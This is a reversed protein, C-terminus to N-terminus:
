RIQMPRVFNGRLKSSNQKCEELVNIQKPFVKITYLRDPIGGYHHMLYSEIYLSEILKHHGCTCYISRSLATKHTIRKSIPKFIQRWNKWDHSVFGIVGQICSKERAQLLKCTIAPFESQKMANNVRTIM